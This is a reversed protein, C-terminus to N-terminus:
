TAGEPLIVRVTVHDIVADDTTTSFPISLLFSGGDTVSVYDEIPLNYGTYFRAKWGGFLPYRPEIEFLLGGRESRYSVHSTSINGIEDRYYVDKASSPLTQRIIPIHNQTSAPYRQYSHRDFNGKLKAGAHEIDYTEEVAVNAGWHSVEIDKVLNTIRLFPKTNEFHLRMPSFRYPKVDSYPGYLVTDGYSSSPKEETKSELNSNPLKITTKQSKSPYPSYFFHNDTYVVYQKETQTVHTPFPTMTHTFIMTAELTAEAGGDLAKNLDV